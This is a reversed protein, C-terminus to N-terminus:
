FCVKKIKLSKIIKPNNSINASKKFASRKLITKRLSKTIFHERNKKIVKM